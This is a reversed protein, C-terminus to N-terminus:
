IWARRQMFKYGVCNSAAAVSELRSVEYHAKFIAFQYFPVTPLTLMHHFVTNKNVSTMVMQILTIILCIVHMYVLSIYALRLRDSMFVVEGNDLDFCELYYGSKTETILDGYVDLGTNMVLDEGQMPPEIEEFMYFLVCAYILHQLLTGQVALIGQVPDRPVPVRDVGKLRMWKELEIQSAHKHVEKKISIKPKEKKHKM